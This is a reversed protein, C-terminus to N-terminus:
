RLQLSCKPAGMGRHLVAHTSLQSSSCRCPETATVTPSHVHPFRTPHSSAAALGGTPARCGHMHTTCSCTAVMGFLHVVVM